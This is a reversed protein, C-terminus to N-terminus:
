VDGARGAEPYSRGKAGPVQGQLLSALGHKSPVPRHNGTEEMLLGSLVLKGGHPSVWM